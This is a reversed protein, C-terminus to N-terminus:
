TKVHWPEHRTGPDIKVLHQTGGLLETVIDKLLLVDFVRFGFWM